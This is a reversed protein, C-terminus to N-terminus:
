EDGWRKRLTKIKADARLSNGDPGCLAVSGKPLGFATEIASKISGVSADSRAKNSRVSARKNSQEAVNEPEEDEFFEDTWEEDDSDGLLTFSYDEDCRWAQGNKIHYVLDCKSPPIYDGYRIKLSREAKLNSHIYNLAAKSKAVIFFVSDGQYGFNISPSIYNYISATLKPNQGAYSVLSDEIIARHNNGTTSDIDIEISPMPSKTWVIEFEDISKEM